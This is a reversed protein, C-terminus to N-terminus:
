LMATTCETTYLRTM